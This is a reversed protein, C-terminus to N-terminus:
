PNGSGRCGSTEMIKAAKLLYEIMELDEDNDPHYTDILM